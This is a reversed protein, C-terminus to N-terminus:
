TTEPNTKTKTSLLKGKEAALIAEKYRRAARVDRHCSALWREHADDTRRLVQVFNDFRITKGVSTHKGEINSRVDVSAEFLDLFDNLRNEIRDLSTGLILPYRIIIERVMRRIPSRRVANMALRSHVDLNLRSRDMVIDEEGMEAVETDSM